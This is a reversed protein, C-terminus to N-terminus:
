RPTQRKLPYISRRRGDKGSGSPTNDVSVLCLTTRITPWSLHVQGDLLM